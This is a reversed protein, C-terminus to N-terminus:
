QSGSIPLGNKPSGLERVKKNITGGFDTFWHVM